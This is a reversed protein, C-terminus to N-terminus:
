YGIDRLAELLNAVDPVGLGTAQDYGRRAPWYWNDGRTIDRLPAHFGQYGGFAAIAYLPPNLFGVRHHLAQGYLSMIGNLQPGVFSTGGYTVIEFGNVDSTYYVQYGTQPDANLSLDPLNRGHYGAPLTVVLDAPNEPLQYLTQGVSNAMNPTFWQYFPRQWEVSVGGGTGSSFFCDPGGGILPCIPLLYEWSWAQEQPVNLVVTTGGIDYTQTGALTTGGGATIFPDSAPADVSLIPNFAPGLEDATDYAGSDGSAAFLSQGQLAAQIFLDHFAALVSTQQGNAPNNIPGGTCCPNLSDFVEWEGWSTSISDALNDDIAAAFADVFQQGNDSNPAEYVLVNAGPALGGSQEVDITTEVSGSADSAPGSGGDIPIETIRNPNVTLGVASWYAYADSQTFGALTVIALTRGRGSIGHAYIPNVDYYDALDVVTWQGPPDPTNPPGGGHMPKSTAQMSQRLHPVMRARTSLGLVAHVSDAVAAPLHPASLPARYRYGERTPTAAVEYSHLQVGFANEIAATTGTVHLQATASRTVTLGLAEFGKTVAAVTEDTPAFQNRFQETTLFQRFQAAGPTYVSKVLSELQDSNRLNLSVTLTIQANEAFAAAPGIDTGAVMSRSVPAAFAASALGLGVAALCYISRNM